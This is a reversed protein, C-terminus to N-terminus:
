SGRKAGAGGCARSLLYSTDFVGPAFFGWRGAASPDIM